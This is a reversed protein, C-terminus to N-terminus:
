IHGIDIDHHSLEGAFKPQHFFLRVFSLRQMEGPSLEQYRSYDSFFNFILFTENLYNRIGTINMYFCLHLLILM